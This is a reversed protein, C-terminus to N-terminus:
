QLVQLFLLFMRMLCMLRIELFQFWFSARVKGLRRSWHVGSLRSCLLVWVSQHRKGPFLVRLRSGVHVARLVQPVSMCSLSSLAAMSVHPLCKVSELDNQESWESDPLNKLVQSVNMCVFLFSVYSSISIMSMIVTFPFYLVCYLGTNSDM